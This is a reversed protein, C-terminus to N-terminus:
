YRRKRSAIRACGNHIASMTTEVERVRGQGLNEENLQRLINKIDTTMIPGIGDLAKHTGGSQFHEALNIPCEEIRKSLKSIEQRNRGTAKKLYLKAIQKNSYM